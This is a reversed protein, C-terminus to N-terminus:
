ILPRKVVTMNRTGSTCWQYRLTGKKGTADLICYDPWSIRMRMVGDRTASMLGM